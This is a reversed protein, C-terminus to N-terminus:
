QLYKYNQLSIHNRLLIRNVEGPRSEGLEEVERCEQARSSGKSGMLKRDCSGVQAGNPDAHNQDAVHLMSRHICERARSLPARWTVTSACMPARLMDAAKLALSPRLLLRMMLNATPM